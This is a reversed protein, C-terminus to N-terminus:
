QCSRGRRAPRGFHSRRGRRAAQGSLIDHYLTWSTLGSIRLLRDYEDDVVIFRHALRESAQKARDPELDLREARRRIEQSAVKGVHRAAEHEVDSQRSYAPEIELGLEGLRIDMNRDYEHGAVAIYGHGDLGHFGARDIKQGLRKAILVHQMRDGRRELAIAAPSLVLLLERLQPFM